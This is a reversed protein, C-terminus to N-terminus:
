PRGRFPGSIEYTVGTAFGRQSSFYLRDERPNFCAGTVESVARTGPDGHQPGTLKCFRSVKPARPTGSARDVEPTILAIDFPDEGGNDECVFLDGSKEAVTINDVNLLPPHKILAPDYLVRIRKRETDYAWIRSDSTTALYVTGSDWWIGEGRMFRTADPVQDRTPASAASPDPVLEWRVRGDEAVVAVELAGASLDRKREPRFRYLCGEGLDESLYAYGSKRDICAAEHKFAGMAPRAVADSRGKPDCEWVLGASVEECSLWTGWPTAGGACNTSTGSLISYAGTISGDRAFEIASAGGRGGPVESNCVLIWGGDSREYTAAGDPFIPWPYSTGGVPVLSRAVERSRFGEPLRIGNADPAGLPGYPGKARKAPRALADWVAPGLAFLGAAALGGGVLQRRSIEGSQREDMRVVRSFTDWRSFSRPTSSSEESLRQDSSEKREIAEFPERSEIPETPETRETPDTPEAADASETADITENPEAIDAAESPETIDADFLPATRPSSSLRAPSRAAPITM